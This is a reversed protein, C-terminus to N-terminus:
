EYSEITLAKKYYFEIERARVVEAITINIILNRADGRIKRERAGM